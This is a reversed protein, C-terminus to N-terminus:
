RSRHAHAPAPVDRLLRSAFEHVRRAREDWTYMQVDEYARRSLREAVREDELVGRLARALEGPSDPAVFVAADPALVEHLSPWDATVIPRQSAMYEFLKGPSIYDIFPNGTPYYSVLVDAAMQYRYVDAPAVFGTFTVNRLKERRARERLREVHDERGGVIVMEVDPGIGRATRLLLDIESSHDHVKGTYAVLPRDRPLGLLKRAPDRDLRADEVAGLDVGQHAVLVRHPDLKLERRLRDALIQSMAVVGDVRELVIPEISRRPPEHSEFLLIIRKRLVRRVILLPIGLLPNKFYVVTCDVHFAERKIVLKWVLYSTYSLM